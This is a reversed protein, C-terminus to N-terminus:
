KSKYITRTDCDTWRLFHAFVYEASSNVEHWLRGLRFTQCINVGSLFNDKHSQRSLSYNPSICIGSLFQSQTVTQEASFNPLYMSWKLITRTACYAWRFRKTFIWRAYFTTRQRSLLSNPWIYVGSLFTDKDWVKSLPSIPCICVRIFFYILWMNSM